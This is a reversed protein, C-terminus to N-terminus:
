SSRPFRTTPRRSCTMTRGIYTIYGDADRSAVDGTRHYGAATVLDNRDDAGLYGTM